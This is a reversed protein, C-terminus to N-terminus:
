HRPCRQVFGSRWHQSWEVKANVIYGGHGDVLRMAKMNGTGPLRSRNRQSTELMRKGNEGQSRLRLESRM